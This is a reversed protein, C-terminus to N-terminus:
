INGNNAGLLYLDYHKPKGNEDKYDVRQTNIHIGQRRLEWIRASLRTIRLDRFADMTTIRGHDKMYQLVIDKQSKM